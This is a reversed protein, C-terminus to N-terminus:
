LSFSEGCGCTRNANPNSWEFGKGNLGSTYDLQSDILYMSSQKDVVLEIDALDFSSDGELTDSKEGFEMFYQLGSCGGSLVGVRLHHTDSSKNEEKLSILLQAKARDTIKVSM